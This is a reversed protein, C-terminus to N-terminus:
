GIVHGKEAGSCDVVVLLVQEKSQIFKVRGRSEALNNRQM